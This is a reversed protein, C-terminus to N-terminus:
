EIMRYLAEVKPTRMHGNILHIIKLVSKLDKIKLYCYNEKLYINGGIKFQIYKAITLDQIHFVIEFYPNYSNINKGPVIISGDGEILGALYSPFNYERRTSIIVPLNIVSSDNNVNDSDNSSINSKHCDSKFRTLKKTRLKSSLINNNFFL